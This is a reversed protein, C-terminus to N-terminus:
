EVVEKLKPWKTKKIWCLKGGSPILQRGDLRMQQSVKNRWVGKSKSAHSIEFGVAKLSSGSEVDLTYTIIRQFGLSFAVDCCRALLFSCGNKLGNTALRRVEITNKDDLYRNCPRGLISVGVLQGDNELGLIFKVNIAKLPLSHRHHISIFRNATSLDVIVPSMM